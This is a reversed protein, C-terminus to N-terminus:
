ERYVITCYVCANLFEKLMEERNRANEFASEMKGEYKKVFEVWETYDYVVRPFGGFPPKKRKRNHFTPFICRVHLTCASKICM